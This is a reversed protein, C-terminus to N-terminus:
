RAFAPRGLDLLTLLRAPPAERQCPLEVDGGHRHQLLAEILKPCLVGGHAQIQRLPLEHVAAARMERVPRAGLKLGLLDQLLDLAPGPDWRPELRARIAM